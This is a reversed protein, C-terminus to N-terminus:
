PQMRGPPQNTWLLLMYGRWDHAALFARRDLDEVGRVVDLVRITREDPAGVAGVFHGGREGGTHVIAYAGATRVHRQLECWPGSRAAVRFGLHEAARKLDLMTTGSSGTRSLERLSELSHEKGALRCICYLTTAGCDNRQQVGYGGVVSRCSGPGNGSTAAPWFSLLAVALLVVLGAVAVGCIPGTIRQLSVAVIRGRLFLVIRCQEDQGQSQAVGNAVTAM